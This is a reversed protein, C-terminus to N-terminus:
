GTTEGSHSGSIPKPEGTVEDYEWEINLGWYEPCHTSNWYYDWGSPQSSAECYITLNDCYRFAYNEISTVSDPITIFTLSDCSYFAEYGISTVGEPITISTLSDCSYFAVNGISTVSNPITVGTINVRRFAYSPIVTIGEPIVLNTILDKGVYLSVAQNTSYLPRSSSSDYSINLYSTLNDIHLEQINSCGDFAYSGISTVGGPITISTLSDCNYFAQSGISTLQSNEKFDVTGLSSCGDFAYSGISTVSEPITISTLSSCEYFTYDRISTVSEPITISTLSTCYRFAYSGISTLQSNEGFTVTELSSCDSFAYSGISTVSDPITISTLSSCDYFAYEGISTVSDPITISTLSSCNYFASSGISTLQSNEGFTVTELSSCYQFASYGISTVSDPITISTLSSCSYFAAGGISTVSTPITVSTINSVRKFAYGPITKVGEPIVLNTILEGEVYLSVAQNTSYLPSSGSGYSINLYDTLDDIYLKQINSCNYFASDGISTVSEPITISSLSSCNSFAYTGISTVSDPITISTLSSCYRFAYNGTSTVSSPIAVSAINNNYYFAYAYIDYDYSTTPLVVNTSVGGIIGMAHYISDEANEYMVVGEGYLKLKSDYNISDFVEEAYYGTYGYSSSDKRINLNSLNNVEILKYNNSFASSGISAVKQPVTISTLGYCNYFAYTNITTLTSPLIVNSLTYNYYFAYSGISTIGNPIVVSKVVGPTSSSGRFADDPISTVQHSIVIDTNAGITADTGDTCNPTLFTSYLEIDAEPLDYWIPDTSSSPYYRKALINKNEPINVFSDELTSVGESLTVNESSQQTSAAASGEGANGIVNGNDDQPVNSFYYFEQGKDNIISGEQYTASSPVIGEIYFQTIDENYRIEYADSIVDSGTNNVFNLNVGVPAEYNVGIQSGINHTPSALVFVISLVFLSFALFISFFWFLVRYKTSTM